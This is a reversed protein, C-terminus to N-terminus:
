CDLVGEDDNSHAAILFLMRIYSFVCLEKM